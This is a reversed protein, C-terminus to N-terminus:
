EYVNGEARRTATVTRKDGRLYAPHFFKNGAVHFQKHLLYLVRATKYRFVAIQQAGDVHTAARGSRQIILVKQPHHLREVAHVDLEGHFRASGIGDSVILQFNHVIHSHRANGDIGLRQIVLRNRKDSSPMGGGVKVGSVVHRALKGEVYVAVKDGPKGSLLRLVKGAGRVAYEGKTGFVDGYVGERKFFTRSKFEGPVVVASGVDAGHHVVGARKGASVAIQRVIHVALLIHAAVQFVDTVAKGAFM